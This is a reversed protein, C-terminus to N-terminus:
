NAGGLIVVDAARAELALLARAMELAAEADTEIMLVQELSPAAGEGTGNAFPGARDTPRSSGHEVPCEAM